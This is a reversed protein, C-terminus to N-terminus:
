HTLGLLVFCVLLHCPPRNDGLIIRYKLLGLMERGHTVCKQVASVELSIDKNHLRLPTHFNVQYTLTNCQLMILLTRMAIVLM